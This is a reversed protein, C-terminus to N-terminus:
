STCRPENSAMDKAPKYLIPMGDGDNFSAMGIYLPNFMEKSLTRQVINVLYSYSMNELALRKVANYM